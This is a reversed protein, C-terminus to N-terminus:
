SSLRAAKGSTEPKTNASAETIIESSPRERELWAGVYVRDILQMGLATLPTAMALGILGFLTGFIL